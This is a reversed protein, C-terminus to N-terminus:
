LTFTGRFLSWRDVVAVIKPDWPHNHYEYKVTYTLIVLLVKGDRSEEEPELSVNMDPNKYIEPGEPIWLGLGPLILYVFFLLLLFPTFAPAM